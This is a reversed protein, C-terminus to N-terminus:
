RALLEGLAELSELNHGAVFEDIFPLAAAIGRALPEYRPSGKLPNVWVLRHALRHLREIQQALVEPDGRELGDSCVVVTAGRLATRQSWADLLARLSEGIRTGGEWDRVSEGIRELAVEPDRTRLHRTVRSLETGFVFAEVRTGSAMAAHAFLLLFRSYPAMSGSVDLILVVPRRRTARARWARRMPEGDTRLSRRLTQRLDFRPGKPASRTRRSSRRPAGLRLRRTLAAATRREEETLDDFSKTRVVAVDSAFIGIASEEDGAEEGEALSRWRVASLGATAQLDGMRDPPVDRLADDRVVDTAIEVGGIVDADREGFWVEFAADYDAILDHRSVLTARGAWYVDTRDAPVLAGVARVFSLVRGPGV